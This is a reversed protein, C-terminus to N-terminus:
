TKSQSDSDKKDVVKPISKKKDVLAQIREEFKSKREDDMSHKKKLMSMPSSVPKKAFMPEPSDIAAVKEMLRDLTNNM